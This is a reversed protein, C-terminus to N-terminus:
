QLIFMLIELLLIIIGYIVIQIKNLYFKMYVFIFYIITYVLKLDTHQTLLKIYDNETSSKYLKTKEQRQKNLKNFIDNNYKVPFSYVGYPIVITDGKKYKKKIKIKSTDKKINKDVNKNELIFDRFQKIYKFSTSM